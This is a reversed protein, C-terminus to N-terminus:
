GIRGAFMSIIGAFPIFVCQVGTADYCLAVMAGGDLMANVGGGIIYSYPPFAQSLELLRLCVGIM